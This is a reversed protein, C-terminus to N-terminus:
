ASYLTFIPDLLYSDLFDGEAPVGGPFLGGQQGQGQGNASASAAAAALLAASM